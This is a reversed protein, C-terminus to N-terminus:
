SAARSIPVRNPQVPFAQKGLPFQTREGLDFHSFVEAQADGGILFRFFASADVPRRALSGGGRFSVV